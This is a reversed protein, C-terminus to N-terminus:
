APSAVITIAPPEPSSVSHHDARNVAYNSMKRKVVREARRLRRQPLLEHGIEVVASRLAQALNKASTGVGSRISRRTAHLSRTFSVRDPDVGQDDAVEAMLARIAYHTCFFGYAEQRVGDPSKSRLVVRPGRQHTKIEDLTTEFEWRQPYLAALELAPAAKPDLITSILRYATEETSPGPDDLTYEVVRVAVPNQGRRDDSAQIHSIYSGDALRRDVPLNHNSKTRWLLDAGTATAQNWLEFSFYYRDALLLMGQSLSPLLDRALTKEGTACRGIAVGFLAHTGCEAVAVVRLQPFAGQGAGRGSSPRGFESDNEPTDAVDVTTGDVSVLRWRRYFGGPTSPRALPVCARDFLVRLPEVGLRTRAQFIASKSPVQWSRKWGSQWSLGEVLSRMVEEYGAQSFLTMALVYYVMLRAPLLRQRREAKGTAAVVEDVVSPPFTRTLVGLAV